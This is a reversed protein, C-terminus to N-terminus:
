ATAAAEAPQRQWDARQEATGHVKRMQVDARNDFQAPKALMLPLLVRGLGPLPLKDPPPLPAALLRSAPRRFTRMCRIRCCTCDHPTVPIRPQLCQMNIVATHVELDDHLVDKLTDFGTGRHVRGASQSVKQVGWARCSSSNLRFFSAARALLRAAAPAPGAAAAARGGAAGRCCGAAWIGCGGGCGSGAAGVDLM